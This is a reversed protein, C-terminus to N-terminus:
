SFESSTHIRYSVDPSKADDDDDIHIGAVPIIASTYARAGELSLHSNIFLLDLEKQLEPATPYGPGFIREISADQESMLYRMIISTTKSSVTNVLRQWFNMPYLFDTSTGPTIATNFPNGLDDNFWDMLSRTMVGVMPINLHRGWALYCDAM